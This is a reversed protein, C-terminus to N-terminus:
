DKMFIAVSGNKPPEEAPGRYLVFFNRMYWINRVSFGLMGAFEKQLDTSLHEVISKGWGEKEQREVIMRGIDWYLSILEKNVSKLADYQASRIRQKINQLLDTYDKQNTINM